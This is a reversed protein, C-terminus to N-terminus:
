LILSEEFTQRHVGVVNQEWDKIESLVFHAANGWQQAFEDAADSISFFFSEM